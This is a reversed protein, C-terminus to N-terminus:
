VRVFVGQKELSRLFLWNMLFFVVLGISVYWGPADKPVFSKIADDILLHLIYAMLANTGFTTFVALKLKLGDCVAYFLVFVALSFGAAFTLYSITGARQSMMWYNWQRKVDKDPRVFPPEALWPSLGSEANVSARKAEIQSALPWVPSEALVKSAVSESSSESVDYWRTGCSMAYGLVMLSLSLTVLGTIGWGTGLRRERMSMLLDCALTGTTAPIIWSLFALPGGDIARPDAFCWHFNFRHALYVHVAASGCMWLVRWRAPLAVVPLLWLSTLAIHMLTQMWNRKLPEYLITWISLESFTKWDSAAPTARYIVLSILILGLVRKVFRGSLEGAWRGERQLRRGLTLRMAFGVAFLFQPMITDAYSCYYHSHKLIAPCAVLSGLFNVLLMGLVTYGRFQDLSVLRSPVALSASEITRSPEKM